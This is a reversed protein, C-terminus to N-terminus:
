ETPDPPTDSHVALRILGAADNLATIADRILQNARPPIRRGHNSNVEVLINQTWRVAHLVIEEAITTTMAKSRPTTTRAPDTTTTRPM